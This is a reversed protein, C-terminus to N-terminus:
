KFGRNGGFEGIYRFSSIPQEKQATISNDLLRIREMEEKYSRCKTRAKLHQNLNGVHNFEHHCNRCSCLKNTM